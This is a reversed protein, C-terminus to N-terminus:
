LILQYIETGFLLMSYCLYFVYTIRHAYIFHEAALGDVVCDKGEKLSKFCQKLRLKYFIIAM